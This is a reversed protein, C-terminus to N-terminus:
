LLLSNWYIIRNNIRELLIDKNGSTLLNMLKLKNKLFIIKSSPEHKNLILKPLEPYLIIQEELVLTFVDKLKIDYKKSFIYSFIYSEQFIKIMKDIEKLDTM